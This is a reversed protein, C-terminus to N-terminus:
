QLLEQIKLGAFSKLRAERYFAKIESGKLEPPYKLLKTTENLQSLLKRYNALTEKSTVCAECALLISEFREPRRFADCSEMFSLIEEPTKADHWAFLQTIVLSVMEVLGNGLHYRKALKKLDDLDLAHVLAAFRVEILTSLPVARQLSQLADQRHMKFLIRLEPFLIELAGVEELCEFYAAPSFETLAKLTEQWVREPVLADLEGSDCLWKALAKTEEAITFGLPQFRALFRALRLVRVPDEAFADSVHRLIRADLDKKGGYPDILQGESSLAMANISLDRRALDQELTVDKATYFEFGHYGAKTKRETRALAYEEHTQPHLFVPFDKGVPKFGLQIMEEPSTGVVVYDKEQIPLGLLQDRVAGGVLYAELM